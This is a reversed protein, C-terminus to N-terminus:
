SKMLSLYSFLKNHRSIALRVVSGFFGTIFPFKASYHVQFQLCNRILFLHQNISWNMRLQHTFRWSCVRMNTPQTLTHTHTSESENAKEKARSNSTHTSFNEYLCFHTHANNETTCWSYCLLSGFLVLCSVSLSSSALSLYLFLALARVYWLIFIVLM